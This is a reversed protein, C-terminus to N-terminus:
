FRIGFVIPILTLGDVGDEDEDTFVRHFRAELFTNFGSLQFDLGGGANLGFKTSSEDGADINYVGLGGIVYPRIGGETTFNLVANAAGAIISADEGEIEINGFETTKGGLSHYMIDFRLGVPLTAPRFGLTGMVNFGTDWFDGADGTPITVGGAVGITFARTSSMDQAQAPAAVVATALALGAVAGLIKKM